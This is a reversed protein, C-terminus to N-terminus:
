SKKIQLPECQNKTLLKELLDKQGYSRIIELHHSKINPYTSNIAKIEARIQALAIDTQRIEENVDVIRKAEQAFVDSIASGIVCIFGIMAYALIKLFKSFPTNSKEIQERILTREEELAKTDIQAQNFQAIKTTLTVHKSELKASQKDYYNAIGAAVLFFIIIGCYIVLNRKIKTPLSYNNTRIWEVIFPKIKIFISNTVVLAILGFFLSPYFSFQFLNEGLNQFVLYECILAVLHIINFKRVTMTTAGALLNEEQGLDEKFHEKAIDVAERDEVPDLKFEQINRKWESRQMVFASGQWALYLRINLAEKIVSPINGVYSNQVEDVYEKGRHEPYNDNEKKM